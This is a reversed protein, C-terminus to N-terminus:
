QGFPYYGFTEVAAPGRGLGGGQGGTGGQGGRQPPTSEGVLGAEQQVHLPGLLRSKIFTLIVESMTNMEAKRKFIHGEHEAVFLWPEVGNRECAEFVQLAEGLPVRTDRAGQIILVPTIMKHCHTLPSAEHLFDRIEPIREDGYEPRRM